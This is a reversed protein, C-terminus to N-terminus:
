VPIQDPTPPSYTSGTTMQIVAAAGLEALESGSRAFTFPMRGPFLGSGPIM